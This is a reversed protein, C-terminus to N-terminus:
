PASGSMKSRGQGADDEGPYATALKFDGRFAGVQARYRQAGCGFELQASAGAALSEWAWSSGACGMEIRRNEGQHWVTFRPEAGQALEGDSAKGSALPIISWPSWKQGDMREVFLARGHWASEQLSGSGGADIARPPPGGILFLAVPPIAGENVAAVAEGALFCAGMAAGAAVQMFRRMRAM